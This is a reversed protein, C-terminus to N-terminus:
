DRLDHTYDNKRKKLGEVWNWGKLSDPVDYLHKSKALKDVNIIGASMVFKLAMEAPLNMEIVESKHMMAVFGQTPSLATPMFVTVFDDDLPASFPNKTSCTLFGVTWCGKRPWEAIVVKEFANKKGSFLADLIQQVTVYVKSVLPIKSIFKNGIHIFLRGLYVKTLMGALYTCTLIVLLGTGPIWQEPFAPWLDHVMTPLASDGFEFVKIFIFITAVIPLLIPIGSLINRIIHRIMFKIGLKKFM